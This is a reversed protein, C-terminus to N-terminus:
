SSIFSSISYKDVIYDREYLNYTTQIGISEESLIFKRRRIQDQDLSLFSDFSPLAFTVVFETETESLKKENSIEIKYSYISPDYELNFIDYRMKIFPYVIDILPVPENDDKFYMIDDSFYIEKEVSATRTKCLYSKIQLDNKLMRNFKNLFLTDIKKNFIFEFDCDSSEFDIKYSSIIVSISISFEVCYEDLIKKLSDFSETPLLFLRKLPFLKLHLDEHDISHEIIMNENEIKSGEKIKGDRYTFRNEIMAERLLSFREKVLDTINQKQEDSLTM